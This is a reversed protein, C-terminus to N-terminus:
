NNRRYGYIMLIKFYEYVKYFVLNVLFFVKELIM